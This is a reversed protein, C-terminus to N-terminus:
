YYDERDALLERLRGLAAATRTKVTGLPTGDRLAIQSHPLGAWYALLLVRQQDTSLEQVASRM